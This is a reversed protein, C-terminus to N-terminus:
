LLTAEFAPVALGRLIEDLDDAYADALDRAGRVLLVVASGEYPIAVGYITDGGEGEDYRAIVAQNPSELAEVAVPEFDLDPAIMGWAAELAAELDDSEIVLVWASLGESPSRIEVATETQEISWGVPVVLSFRGEPDVYSPANEQELVSIPFSENVGQDWYVIAYAAFLIAVWITTLVLANKM